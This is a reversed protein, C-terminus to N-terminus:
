RPCGQGATLRVDLLARVLGDAAHPPPRVDDGGHGLDPWWVIRMPVATPSRGSAPTPVVLVCSGTLGACGTWITWATRIPASGRGSSVPQGPSRVGARPHLTAVVESEDPRIFVGSRWCFKSTPPPHRSPMGASGEACWEVQNRPPSNLQTQQGVRRSCCYRRQTLCLLMDTLM